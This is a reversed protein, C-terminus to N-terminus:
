VCGVVDISIATYLHIMGHYLPVHIPIKLVSVKPLSESFLSRHGTVQPRHDTVQSWNGTVQSRHGTVQLM